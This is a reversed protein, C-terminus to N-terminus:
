GVFVHVHKGVTITLPKTRYQMFLREVFIDSDPQPQSNFKIVTIAPVNQRNKLGTSLRSVFTFEAYKATLGVRGIFRLRQRRNRVAFTENEFRLMDNGDIGISFRRQEEAKKNTIAEFASVNTSLYLSSLLLLYLCSKM